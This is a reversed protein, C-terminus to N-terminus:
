GSFAHLTRVPPAFGLQRYFRKVDRSVIHRDLRCGQKTALVLQHPQVERTYRFLSKRLELSFPVKREKQGKGHITLLLNDLDCDAVRLDLAESIRCGTDLLILILLHLRWQYYGNPKHGLSAQNSRSHFHASYAVARKAQSGKANLRVM